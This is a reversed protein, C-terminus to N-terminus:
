LDLLKGYEFLPQITPPVAAAPWVNRKKPKAWTEAKALAPAPQPAAGVAHKRVTVRVTGTIPAVFAGGVVACYARENQLRLVTKGDIELTAEKHGTLVTAIRYEHDRVLDLEVVQRSSQNLM